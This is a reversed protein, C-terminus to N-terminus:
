EVDIWGASVTPADPGVEAVAGFHEGVEAGPEGGESGEGRRGRVGNARWGM